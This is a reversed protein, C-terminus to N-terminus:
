KIGALKAWRNVENAEDGVTSARPTVRSSSGLTKRVASESLNRSKPKNLSETLSTYLLKVERLSRANDLSEIISRRQTPSVGKNQLLKNVYLLKANFLNLETLQERLTQMAGRYENLKRKLTRNTRKEKKYAESLANLKVDLPDKGRKGGGFDDGSKGSGKGGWSDAMDKSIGKAKTMEAAERLASLERRLMKEDIEFVEDTMEEVETDSIVEEEGEDEEEAGLEVDIDDEEEEMLIVALDSPDIEIDGLEIRLSAENLLAELTLEDLDLNDDSGLDPDELWMKDGWEEDLESAEDPGEIDGAEDGWFPKGKKGHKKHKSTKKTTYDQDEDMLENLDIEYLVDSDQTSMNSNEMKSNEDVLTQDKKNQNAESVRTAIKVLESLDNEDIDQLAESLEPGLEDSSIKKKLQDVSEQGDLMKVLSLLASEDLGISDSSDLTGDDDNEEEESMMEKVVGKLIDDNEDDSMDGDENLLQDEIFQRIKPTVAEIIANKANQEAIRRLDKAEAIAEHYLTQQSM